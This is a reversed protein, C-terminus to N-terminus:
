LPRCRGPRTRDRARDGEGGRQEKEGCGRAGRDGVHEAEAGLLRREGAGGGGPHAVEGGAVPIRGAEREDGLGLRAQAHEAEARLELNATGAVNAGRRDGIRERDEDAAGRRDWKGAREIM